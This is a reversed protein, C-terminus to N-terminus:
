SSPAPRMRWRARLGATALVPSALTRAARHRRRWRVLERDSLAGSAALAQRWSPAAPHRATPRWPKRPGCFHVVRARASLVQRAARLSRGDREVPHAPWYLSSQVNWAPDIERWGEVVANLADQDHDRLGPHAHDLVRRALGTAGGAASTSSSSARTSTRAPGARRPGQYLFDRVAAIPHGDLDVDALPALDGTVLIDLDLVM